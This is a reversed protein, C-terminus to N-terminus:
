KNLDGWKKLYVQANADDQQQMIKSDGKENRILSESGNRKVGHIVEVKPTVALSFGAQRARRSYDVDDWGWGESFSEDLFGITQIVSRKIYTCVLALYRESYTLNNPPNTQLPNDAGGCIKPSLLGIEPRSNAVEYMTEITGMSKLRVDDGILLVDCDPDVAKLGLNANVSYVFKGDPGQISYWGPVREGLLYGDKM